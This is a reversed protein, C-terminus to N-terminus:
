SFARSFSTLMATQLLRVMSKCTTKGVSGTVAIVTGQYEALAHIALDELAKLTTEPVVVIGKQACQAMALLSQDTRDEQLSAIYDNEVVVGVGQKLADRVFAHGDHNKGQVATSLETSCRTNDDRFRM